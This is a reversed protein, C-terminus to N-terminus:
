RPLELNVQKEQPVRVTIEASNYGAVELRLRYEGDKPFAVPGPVTALLAGTALQSGSPASVVILRGQVGDAGRVAFTVVSGTNPNGSVALTRPNPNTAQSPRGLLVAGLVLLGGLVLAILVYRGMNWRPKPPTVVSRWSQDDEDFGIRIPALRPADADSDETVRSSARSPLAVDPEDAALHEPESLQAVVPQEPQAVVSPEPQAVVPQEPQIAAPETSITNVVAPEPLEHSKSVEAAPEPLVDPAPEFNAVVPEPPTLPTEFLRTELTYPNAKPLLEAELADLRAEPSDDLAASPQPDLAFPQIPETPEPELSRIQEPELSSVPPNTAPPEEPKPLEPKSPKVVVVAPQEPKPAPELRKTRKIPKEQSRETELYETASLELATQAIDPANPTRPPLVQELALVLEQATPRESPRPNLCHGILRGFEGDLMLRPKGKGFMTMCRAWAFVDTAFSINTEPAQYDSQAAGWPLGWGELLLHDASAYFHSPELNGHQLGGGHADALARSSARVLWELRPQTLIPKLPTFGPASSTVLFWLDHEFGVELVTPIAESYVEPIAQPKEPMTYIFVPMGTILDIGACTEINGTQLAIGGFSQARATHSRLLRTAAYQSFTQMPHIGSNHLPLMCYKQDVCWQLAELQLSGQQIKPL